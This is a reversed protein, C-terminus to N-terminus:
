FKQSIKRFFIIIQFANGKPQKFTVLKKAKKNKDTSSLTSKRIAKNIKSSLTKYNSGSQMDDSDTDFSSESEDGNNSILGNTKNSVTGENNNQQNLDNSKSNSIGTEINSDLLNKYNVIILKSCASWCKIM